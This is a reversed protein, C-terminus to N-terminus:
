ERAALALVWGSDLGVEGAALFVGHRAQPMRPLRSGVLWRSTNAAVVQREAGALVADYGAGRLLVLLRSELDSMRLDTGAVGLFVEDVVPVTFTCVYRDAGSYDVYPGFVAHRSHDRAAAYWEMEFYDYVDVCAPDLNLRLPVFDAAGRQWWAIHRERDPLLQRAALFGLGDAWPQATLQEVVTPRLGALHAASLVDHSAMAARRRRVVEAAVAEPGSFVEGLLDRVRELLTALVAAPSDAGAHPGEHPTTRESVM